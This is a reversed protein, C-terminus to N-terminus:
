DVTDLVATVSLCLKGTAAGPSAAIGRALPGSSSEQASSFLVENLDETRIENIAEQTTKKGVAVQQVVSIIKEYANM